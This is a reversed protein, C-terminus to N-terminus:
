RNGDRVPWVRGGFLGLSKPSRSFFGLGISVSWADAPDSEVTTTSWSDHATVGVFSTGLGSLPCGTGADNTLARSTGPGGVNCGLAVGRAITAAWEDKSPLRWDGPSSNDALGCQGNTLAAAAQNAGAWNGAVLCAANKLWILGTVGDTVTGNGCDVYRNTNDFCPGDPRTAGTGNTGNTGNIGNTGNAGNTGNCVYANVPPNGAAYIAGGNPCGHENGSFYDVFTVSTGAIGNAGDIGNTGNAGNTGNTGNIGNTGNTGNSGPAGPSGQINWHVITEALVHPPAICVGSVGVIRAVKSITGICAHVVNPDNNGGHARASTPIASLALATAFITWRM